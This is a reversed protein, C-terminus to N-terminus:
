IDSLLSDCVNVLLLSESFKSLVCMCPSYNDEFLHPFNKTKGKVICQEKHKQVTCKSTIACYLGVFHFKEININM